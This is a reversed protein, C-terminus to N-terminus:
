FLLVFFSLSFFGSRRVQSLAVIGWCIWDYYISFDCASEGLKVGCYYRNVLFSVVSQPVTFVTTAYGIFFYQGLM